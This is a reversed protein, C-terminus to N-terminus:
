ASCTSCAHTTCQTMAPVQYSCRFVGCVCKLAPTNLQLQERETGTCVQCCTSRQHRLAQVPQASLMIGARTQYACATHVGHKYLSPLVHRHVGHKYMSPLLLHQVFLEIGTCLKAACAANDIGACAAYIVGTPEQSGMSYCHQLLLAAQRYLNPLLHQVTMVIGARASYIVCHRYARALLHQLMLALHKYLTPLVHQTFVM